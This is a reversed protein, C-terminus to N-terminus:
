FYARFQCNLKTIYKNIDIIKAKKRIPKRKIKAKTIRLRINEIIAATLAPSLL